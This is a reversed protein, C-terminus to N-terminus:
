LMEVVVCSGGQLRNQVQQLGRQRGRGQEGKEGRHLIPSPGLKTKVEVQGRKSINVYQAFKASLKTMLNLLKGLTAVSSFAVGALPPGTYINTCGDLQFVSAWYRALDCDEFLELEYAGKVLTPM